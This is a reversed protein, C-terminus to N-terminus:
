REGPWDLISCLDPKDTDLFTYAIGSLTTGFDLGIILQDDDESVKLDEFDTTLEKAIDSTM